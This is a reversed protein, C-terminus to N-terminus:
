GLGAKGSSLNLTLPLGPVSALQLAAHARCSNTPLLSKHVKSIEATMKAAIIVGSCLYVQVVACKTGRQRVSLKCNHNSIYADRGM